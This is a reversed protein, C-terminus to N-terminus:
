ESGNNVKKKQKPSEDSKKEEAVLSVEKSGHVKVLYVDDGKVFVSKIHPLDKYQERLQQIDM